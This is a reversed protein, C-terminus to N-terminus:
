WVDVATRSRGVMVAPLVAGLIAAVGVIIGIWGLGSETHMDALMSSSGAAVIIGAVLLLIGMFGGFGRAEPALAACLLMLGAFLEILGILATAQIGLVNVTLNPIDDFGARGVTVAGLIVLFLGCLGHVLQSGSYRAWGTRVVRQTEVVPVPEVVHQEVYQPAVPVVPDAVVEERVVHRTVM